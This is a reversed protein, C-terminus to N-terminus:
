RGLSGGEGLVDDGGGSEGGGDDRPPPEPARAEIQALAADIRPSLASLGLLLSAFWRDAHTGLTAAFAQLQADPLRVEARPGGLEIDADALGLLWREWITLLQGQGQSGGLAAALGSTASLGSLVWRPLQASAFSVVGNKFFRTRGLRELRAAGAPTDLHDEGIRCVATLLEAVLWRAPLMDLGALGAVLSYSAQAVSGFEDAAGAAAPEDGIPLAVDLPVELAPLPTGGEPAALVTLTIPVVAEGIGPFRLAGTLRTGEPLHAPVRLTVTQRVEAGQLLYAYAPEVRASAPLIDGDSAVWDDVTPRVLAAAMMRNRLALRLAVVMGPRAELDARPASAM